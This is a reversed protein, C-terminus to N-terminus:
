SAGSIRHQYLLVDYAPVVKLRLELNGNMVPYHGLRWERGLDQAVKKPALRLDVIYTSQGLKGALEDLSGSLPGRLTTLVAGCAAIGSGVLSGITLVGRPFRRRLYVGMPVQTATSKAVTVRVPAKSLHLRHGFVLIRGERGEKDVIWALNDAQAHERIKSARTGRLMLESEMNAFRPAPARNFARLWADVREANLAARLAWDHASDSTGRMPSVRTKRLNETIKSVTSSLLQRQRSTLRRYDRVGTGGEPNCSLLPLISELRRLHATAAEPDVKRLYGLVHRLATDVGRRPTPNGPSGPLDFGYLNVLRGQTRKRRNHRRLWEMLTRNQPLQEFTWSLGQALAQSSSINPAGRVYDYAVRGEVFGSELAIATFNKETVLYQFLRNRAELIEAAGHVAESFCVIRADGVIEDLRTFSAQWAGASSWDLVAKERLAWERLHSRM